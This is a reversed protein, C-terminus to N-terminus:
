PTIPTDHAVFLLACVLGLRVQGPNVAMDGEARRRRESTNASGPSGNPHETMDSQWASGTPQRTAFLLSCFGLDILNTSSGCM